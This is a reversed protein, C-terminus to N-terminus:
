ATCRVDDLPPRHPVSRSSPSILLFCDMVLMMLRWTEIKAIASPNLLIGLQLPIYAIHKDHAVILTYLKIVVM